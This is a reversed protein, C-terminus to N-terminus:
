QTLAERLLQSPRKFQNKWARAHDGLQNGYVVQGAHRSIFTRVDRRLFRLGSKVGPRRPVPQPFDAETKAKLRRYVAARSMDRVGAYRCASIFQELSLLNPGRLMTAINGFIGVQTLSFKESLIM